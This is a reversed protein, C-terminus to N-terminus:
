PADVRRFGNQTVEFVLDGELDTRAIQAGAAAIAALASQHPHGYRNNRGCSIAVVRPRAAALWSAGTSTRSGHHGAHLVQARWDPLRGVMASEVDMPADGSFVATSAGDVIRVFMSGDNDKEPRAQSSAELQLTATGFQVRASRELWVVKDPPLDQLQPHGRFCAPVVIKGVNFRSLISRLGGIHDSDPHSLLVLDVSGVGLRDLAPAVFRAGADLRDSLPGVDILATRGDSQFVACDGQGVSLVALRDGGPGSKGYLVGGVLALSLAGTALAGNLSARM